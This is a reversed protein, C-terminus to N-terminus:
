SQIGTTRYEYREVVTGTADTLATVDFSRQHSPPRVGARRHTASRRYNGYVYTASVAGARDREELVQLGRYYYRTTSVSGSVSRDQRSRAITRGLADHRYHIPLFTPRTRDGASAFSVMRNRYDYAISVHSGVAPLNGPEDYSRTGDPTTTYQNMQFDGPEPTSSVM